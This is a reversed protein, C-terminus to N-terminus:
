RFVPQAPTKLPTSLSHEDGRSLSGGGRTQPSPEPRSASLQALLELKQLTTRTTVASNTDTRLSYIQKVQPSALAFRMNLLKIKEEESLTNLDPAPTSQQSEGKHLAGDDNNKNPTHPPMDGAKGEGQPEDTARSGAAPPFPTTNRLLQQAVMVKKPASEDGTELLPRKNEQQANKHRAFGVAGGIAAGALTTGGIIALLHKIYRKKKQTLAIKYDFIAQKLTVIKAELQAREEKSTSLSALQQTIVLSRTLEHEKQRLTFINEAQTSCV